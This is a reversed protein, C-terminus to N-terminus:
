EKQRVVREQIKKLDLYKASHRKKDSSVKEQLEEDARETKRGHNELLQELAAHAEEKFAEMRENWSDNFLEIDKEELNNLEQIEEIQRDILGQKELEKLQIKLEKIETQAGDAEM